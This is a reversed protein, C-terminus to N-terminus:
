DHRICNYCIHNDASSGQCDITCTAFGNISRVTIAKGRFDIDRNGTGTYTGDAVLVTDGTAAEDIAQQISDFPHEATGNELPDSVSPNGPGPDGAANDDVYITAGFGVGACVMVVLAVITGTKL